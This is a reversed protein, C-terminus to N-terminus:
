AALKSWGLWDHINVGAFGKYDKWKAEITAIDKLVASKYKKSANDGYTVAGGRGKVTEIGPFVNKGALSSGYIIETKVREAMKNLDTMYSMICYDDVYKIAHKMLNQTVGDFTLTLQEGYYDDFWSPVAAGSKLNANHLMGTVTKQITLWDKMIFIRDDYATKTHVGGGTKSLKSTPVDNHFTDPYNGSYDDFEQDTQFGYFKETETVKANYALMAKVSAYLGNPGNVDSFYTRGGDLAWAKIGVGSLSKIFKRLVDTKGFNSVTLYLYVDTIKIRKAEAIFATPNSAVAYGNWVWMGRRFTRTTMNHSQIHQDRQGQEHRLFFKTIKPDVNEIVLKWIADFRMSPM